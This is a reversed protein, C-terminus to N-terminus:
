HLRKGRHGKLSIRQGHERVSSDGEKNGEGTGGCQENRGGKTEKLRKEKLM